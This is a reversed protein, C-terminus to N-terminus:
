ADVGGEASGPAAARAAGMRIDQITVGDPLNKPAHRFAVSAFTLCQDDTWPVVMGDPIATPPATYLPIDQWGCGTLDGIREDYTANWDWGHKPHWRVFRVAESQRPKSLAAARLATMAEALEPHITKGDWEPLSRAIRLVRHIPTEDGDPATPDAMRKELSDCDPCQVGGEGPDYFTPGGLWGSGNCTACKAAPDPTTAQLAALAKEHANALYSYNVPVNGTTLAGHEDVAAKLREIAFDFSELAARMAARDTATAETRPVYDESVSKMLVKTYPSESWQDFKCACPNGVGEGHSGAFAAEAWRVAKTFTKLDCPCYPNNTSFTNNWGAEIMDSTLISM